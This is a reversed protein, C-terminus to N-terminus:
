QSIGNGISWGVVFSAGGKARMILPFIETPYLWPTTLWIAGFTATYFFTFAAVAAGYSKQDPGQIQAHKDLIGAIPLILAVGVAGWM